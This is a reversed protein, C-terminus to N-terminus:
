ERFFAKIILERDPVNRKEMKEILEAKDYAIRRHELEYRDKLLTIISYYAESGEHCGVSGPNIYRKKGQLDSFIHTHGYAIIDADLDSCLVDLEDATKNRLDKFYTFNASQEYYFPCHVFSIKTQYFKEDIRLPFESVKDKIEDNLQSHTWKHHLFEEDSMSAPQPKELGKVYYEEHNGMIMTVKENVLLLDLCEKPYCGISISDGLHFIQDVGEKVLETMIKSLAPYNAHLDAILAIKIM